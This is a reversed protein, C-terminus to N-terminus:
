LSTRPSLQGISLGAAHGALRTAPDDVQNNTQAVIICPEGGAALTAAGQVVLTSTGAGPPSDVIIGRQGPRAMTALVAPIPM